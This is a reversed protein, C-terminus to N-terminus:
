NRNSPVVPTNDRGSVLELRIEVAFAKGRRVRPLFWDAFHCVPSSVLWFDSTLSMEIVRTLM